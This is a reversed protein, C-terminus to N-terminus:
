QDSRRVRSLCLAFFLGGSVPGGPLLLWRHDGCGTAHLLGYLGAVGAFCLCAGAVYLLSFRTM